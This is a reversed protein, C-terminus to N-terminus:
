LPFDSPLRSRLKKYEDEHGHDERIRKLIQKVDDSKLGRVRGVMRVTNEFDDGCTAYCNCM